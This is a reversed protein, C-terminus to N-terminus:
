SGCSRMSREHTRARGRRRVTRAQGPPEGKPSRNVRENAEIIGVVECARLSDALAQPTILELNDASYPVAPLRRQGLAHATRPLNFGPSCLQREDYGYPSFPLTDRQHWCM